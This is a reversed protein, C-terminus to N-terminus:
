PLLKGKLSLCGSSAGKCDGVGQLVFVSCLFACHFASFRHGLSLDTLDLQRISYRHGAAPLRLVATHM